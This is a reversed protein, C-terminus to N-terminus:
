DNFIREEALQEPDEDYIGLAKRKEIDKDPNKEYYPDIMYKKIVPFSLWSTLFSKFGPFFVFLGVLYVIVMIQGMQATAGLLYFAALPLLYLVALVAEVLLTRWPNIFILNISNKFLQKISFNFTIMMMYMYYKMGSFLIHMVLAGAFGLVALTDNGDMFFFFYMDFFLLATLLANIVSLGLAQKWNKKVADFFDGVAFFPRRRTAARTINCLGVTGIGSPLLLVSFPISLLGATLLKGFCSFYIEFFEFFGKKKPEDKKVGKGEKLPDYLQFFKAM